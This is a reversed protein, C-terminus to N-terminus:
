SRPRADTQALRPGAVWETSGISPRPWSRANSCRGRISNSKWSRTPNSASHAALCRRGRRSWGRRDWRSVSISRRNERPRYRLKLESSRRTAQDPTCNVSIQARRANDPATITAALQNCLSCFHCAFQRLGEGRALPRSPAFGRPQSPPPHLALEKEIWRRHAYVETDYAPTDPRCSPGGASTIGVLYTLGGFDAYLPGGSDGRCTSGLQLGVRDARYSWCILNRSRARIGCSATVTNAQLKLGTEELVTATDTIAGGAGIPNHAGYGVSAAPTNPPLRRLSNLQMPAIGPVSRELFVIALDSSPLDDTWRFQPHVVIHSIDFLGAHQLYVKQYRPDLTSVGGGLRSYGGAACGAATRYFQGYPDKAGTECICHAATLVANPAILTGSCYTTLGARRRGDDYMLAVTTPHYPKVKNGPELVDSQLCKPSWDVSLPLTNVGTNSKGRENLEPPCRRTPELEPGEPRRVKRSFRVETGLYQDIRFTLAVRIARRWTAIPDEKPSPREKLLEQLDPPSPQQNKLADIIFGLYEWKTGLYYDIRKLVCKAYNKQDAANIDRTMNEYPRTGIKPWANWTENPDKPDIPQFVDPRFAVYEKIMREYINDAGGPIPRVKKDKGDFVKVIPADPEGNWNNWDAWVRKSSRDVDAKLKKLSDALRARLLRRQMANLPPEITQARASSVLSVDFVWGAPAVLLALAALALWPGFRLGRPRGRVAISHFDLM